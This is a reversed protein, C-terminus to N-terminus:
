KVVTHVGHNQTALEMLFSRGRTSRYSLTNITIKQNQTMADVMSYITEPPIGKGDATPIGDSLLIITKPAKQIAQELAQDTHTESHIGKRYTSWYKWNPVRDLGDKRLEKAPDLDILWRRAQEISKPTIEQFSSRYTETGNGFAIINFSGYGEIEKLTRVLEEVVTLYGDIGRTEDVMSGSIDILFITKDADDGMKQGFFRFDKMTMERIQAQSGVGTGFGGSGRGYSSTANINVDINLAPIAIDPTDVTIPNPRPSSSSRNRQELNVVYEPEEQPLQEIVPAEFTQDKRAVAEVIRFAGFIALALLHLGISIGIILILTKARSTSNTVIM